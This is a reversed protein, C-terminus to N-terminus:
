VERALRVYRLQSQKSLIHSTYLSPLMFLARVGSHQHQSVFSTTVRKRVSAPPKMVLTKLLFWIPGRIQKKESDSTRDERARNKSKRIKQGMLTRKAEGPTPPPPPTPRLLHPPTPRLPPTPHPSSTPGTVTWSCTSHVPHQSGDEKAESLYTQLSLFHTFQQFYVVAGQSERGM